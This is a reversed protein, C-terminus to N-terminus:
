HHQRHVCLSLCDLWNVQLLKHQYWIDILSYLSVFKPAQIAMSDMASRHTRVIEWVWDVWEPFVTCLCTTSHAKGGSIMSSSMFLFSAHILDSIACPNTADVDLRLSFLVKFLLISHSSRAAPYQFAFSSFLSSLFEPTVACIRTDLEPTQMMDERKLFKYRTIGDRIARDAKAIAADLEDVGNTQKRDKKVEEEEKDESDSEEEREGDKKSDNQQDSDSEEDKQNEGKEKGDSRNKKDKWEKAKNQRIAKVVQVKKMDEILDSLKDLIALVGDVLSCHDPESVLTLEHLSFRRFLSSLVPLVFLCETRTQKRRLM